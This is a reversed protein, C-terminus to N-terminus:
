SLVSAALAQLDSWGLGTVQASGAPVEIEVTASALPFTEALMTVVARQRELSGLSPDDLPGDVLARAAEEAREQARLRAIQRPQAATRPGVGLLERRARLRAKSARALASSAAPDGGLGVGAHGPCLVGGRMRVGRCRDGDSKVVRCRGDDEGALLKAGEPVKHGEPLGEPEVLGNGENEQKLLYEM